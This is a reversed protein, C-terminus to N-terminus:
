PMVTRVNGVHRGDCFRCRYVAAAAAFDAGLRDAWPQAQARTPFRAKGKCSKAKHQRKQIRTGAM